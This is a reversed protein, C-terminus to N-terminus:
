FKYSASLSLCHSAAGSFEGNLTSNRVTRDEKWAHLYAAGISWQERLNYRIGFSAFWADSDPLDFSLTEDPVPNGDFGFGGMLTLRQDWLYTYGLRFADVDDWDKVIPDDFAATLVPHGLSVPYSFDQTDNASWFTRDYVFELTSKEFSYSVALALVAPLPTSISGTGQYFGSPFLGNFYSSSTYLTGSGEMDLDIESRYTAALALKDTPKVSMALNYGYETTDGDMDRSIYTYEPTAPLGGGLGGAPVAEINGASRDTADSYVARAGLALSFMDNVKYAVTPNAEVVTMAFKNAFTGPFVDEWRKSLGAPIVLAFGVRFNNYAPSVIHLNPLLFNEEESTGSLSSSRFDEYSISPLNIYSVGGEMKLGPSLWSMNAPNYYAADAYNANAVYASGLATANVSQEPIRYGSAFAAEKVVLIAMGATLCITRQRMDAGMKM